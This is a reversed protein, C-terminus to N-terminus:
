DKRNTFIMIYSLFRLFYVLSTMMSAIYTHIAANLVQKSNKIETETFMGTGRLMSIAKKSADHELPLTVLQFLLSAGYSIVSALCMYYGIAPLYFTFSLISGLLILPVFARSVFNVIPVIAIRLRFLISRKADQIAHGVEHACVGLASISTSNYTAQSLKVVKHRPDYCDTLRGNIQVVEVNDVGASHLLKRALEASTMGSSSSITSFRNFTSTVSAQAIVGYIFIPLIMLSAIIYIIEWNM